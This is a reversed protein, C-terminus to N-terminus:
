KAQFLSSFNREHIDRVMQSAAQDVAGFRPLSATPMTSNKRCVLVAAAIRCTTRM